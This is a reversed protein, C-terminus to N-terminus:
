EAAAASVSHPSLTRQPSGPFLEKCVWLDSSLFHELIKTQTKFSGGTHGTHGTHGAAGGDELM